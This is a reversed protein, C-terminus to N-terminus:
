RLWQQANSRVIRALLGRPEMDIKGNDCFNDVIIDNGGPVWETFLVDDGSLMRVSHDDMLELEVDKTETDHTNFMTAVVQAHGETRFAHGLRLGKKPDVRLRITRPTSEGPEVLVKNLRLGTPTERVTGIYRNFIPADPLAVFRIHDGFTFRQAGCVVALKDLNQYGQVKLTDPLLEHLTRVRHLPLHLAHATMQKMFSLRSTRGSLVVMHPTRNTRGLSDRLEELYLFVDMFGPEGNTELSQRDQEVWERLLEQWLELRKGGRALEDLDRGDLLPQFCLMLAREDDPGLTWTAQSEAMAIKAQEALEHIASVAQRKYALTFAPNEPEVRFDLSEDIGYKERVFTLIATAVVHTLRDGARNFRMSEIMKFRVDIGDDDDRVSWGIDVCAIDTSGGGVDVVLLRLEDTGETNGLSAAALRLNPADFHFFQEWLVYAAVAVPESCILEVDFHEKIKDDHVLVHQAAKRVMEQFLRRDAARWTLPYTLLIRAVQPYFEPVSSTGHPNTLSALAYQFMQDLTHQVFELNPRLGTRQGLIGRCPMSHEEAEQHAAWHRVHKKPSYLSSAEPHDRILEEARKGMVIWPPVHERNDVRLVIMNSRLIDREHAPRRQYLPDFPNHIEIPKSDLPGSGEKAFVFASGTNGFDVILSGVDNRARVHDEVFVDALHFDKRFIQGLRSPSGRLLVPVKNRPMNGAGSQTDVVLDLCVEGGAWVVRFFVFENADTAMWDTADLAVDQRCAVHEKVLQLNQNALQAKGQREAARKLEEVRDGVTRTIRFGRVLQVGTNPLVIVQFVNSRDIQSHAPQSVTM